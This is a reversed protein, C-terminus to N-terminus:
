GRKMAAAFEAYNIKGDGNTDAEKIAEEVQADTMAMGMVEMTLKFEEASVQGNGDRDFLAFALAVEDINKVADPKPPHSAILGLFEPYDIVGNHNADLDTLITVVEEDTVHYGFAILVVKLESSTLVGDHNLDFADFAKRLDDGM